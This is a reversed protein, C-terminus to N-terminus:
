VEEIIMEELFADPDKPYEGNQVLTAIKGEISFYQKETLQVDLGRAIPLVKVLLERFKKPWDEPAETLRAMDRAVREVGALLENVKGRLKEANDVDPLEKLFGNIEVKTDALRTKVKKIKEVGHKGNKDDPIANVIRLVSKALEMQIATEARLEPTVEKKRREREEESVEVLDATEREVEDLLSSVKEPDPMLPRGTLPDQVQLLEQATSWHERLLTFAKKTFGFNQYNEDTVKEVQGQLAKARAELAPVLGVRRTREIEATELQDKIGQLIEVHSLRFYYSPIVSAYDQRIKEMQEFSLGYRGFDYLLNGMRDQLELVLADKKQIAAKEEEVRQAMREKAAQHRTEEEDYQRKWARTEEDVKKAQLPDRFYEVSYDHEYNNSWRNSVQWAPYAMIEEGEPTKGFSVPLVNINVLDPLEENVGIAPIEVTPQVFGKWLIEAQRARADQQLESFYLFVKKESQTALCFTVRRGGLAQVLDEERLTLAADLPLSLIVKGRREYQLPLSFGGVIIESPTNREIEKEEKETCFDRLNLRLTEGLRAVDRFRTVGELRERYWERLNPAHITGGSRNELEELRDVVERNHEFIKYPIQYALISDILAETAVEGKAIATKEFSAGYGGGRLQYQMPQEVLDTAPNYLPDGKPLAEFLQPAIETLWEIKVRQCERAYDKSIGEKNTTTVVKSGVMLPPRQHFLGSSPHIYFEGSLAGSVSEYSYRGGPRMLYKVNGAVICKEILEEENHADYTPMNQRELIQLLQRYIEKADLLQRLSLYNEKPWQKDFGFEEWERWVQLMSLFDSHSSRFRAQAQNAKLQELEDKPRVFVPKGDMMACIVAVSEVCGYREAEILMRAKEPSLPIEAMREGLETLYGEEDLAGLATLNEFATAIAKHSPKDVFPFSDIDDIGITKMQLIVHDLNSREIEPKQFDRRELFEEETYLRYCVGPATRGARGKRQECGSKAHPVTTLAEIGSHPNYDKQKIYGSDIVVTVGDITLSTEAINTAVIVKRQSTPAFIKDQDEPSMTGYLPLLSIDERELEEIKAITERIEAEGPMFILIDGAVGSNLIEEVKEKTKEIPDEVPVSAYFTEVPFLRGPVEVAGESGFYHAFKEKEITASTAIIKLPPFGQRKREEQAMKLLGLTFDINLSREHAEDVMVVDFEQLLPDSRFKSLLLGDTFFNLRTGESTHDDFRVTYGVEGGISEGRETAVFNAVARTAVKRPQTVAIKADPFTELLYVPIRTTKGSGTEGIIVSNENRQIHEIIQERYKEIPLETRLSEKELSAPKSEGSSQEAFGSKPWEAMAQYKM